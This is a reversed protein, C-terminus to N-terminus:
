LCLINPNATDDVPYYVGGLICMEDTLASEGFMLTSTTDNVYTCTFTVPTGEALAMPPDFRAPTLDSWGSTEYITRDAATALFNVAHRHVHASAGLLSVDKPMTCTKTVKTPVSPPVDIDENSFLLQGAHNVISGAPAVHFRTTVGATVDHDTENIFHLQLRLGSTPPMAVGVGAPMDMVSDPTQSAFVNPHFESGSCEELAGDTIGDVFFVIMHHAGEPMHAEFRDVDVAEGGFPNAFNQCRYAEAGPPVAFGDMTLVVNTGADPTAADGPVDKKTNHPSTGDGSRADNACSACLSILVFALGLRELM